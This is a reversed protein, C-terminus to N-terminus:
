HQCDVLVKVAQEPQRAQSLAEEFRSLPFRHSILPSVDIERRVLMAIVEDFEDPYAMSATVQLERLLFNTMDFEVPTFHVGVVVIRAGKRATFTIQRLVEGVGTAEIYVDTGPQPGLLPDNTVTGHRERLAGALDGTDAALVEFGMQQAVQLRRASLDVLLVEAAGLHRAAVASALGVPGAGFVTVKDDRSIRGQHGAHMGVALPEVLAGTEFDLEDPLKLLGEPDGTANRYLVHSAFAGQLGGSGIANDGRDPNAVVRDGVQVHSVREGTAVVTGAFEHGLAFPSAAGPIGGLKVYSLDSGCIGCNAVEILVDDAGPRPREVTDVAVRDPAHIRVQPMTDM